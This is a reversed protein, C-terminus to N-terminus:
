SENYFQALVKKSFIKPIYASQMDSGYNDFGAGSGYYDGNVGIRNSLADEM